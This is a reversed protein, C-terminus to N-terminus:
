APMPRCVIKRRAGFNYVPQQRRKARLDWLAIEISAVPRGGIYYRLPGALRRYDVSRKGAAPAKANDIAAADHRGSGVLGQDTHIELYSGGGVRHMTSTRPEPPRGDNGNRAPGQSSRTSNETIKLRPAAQVAPLMAVAPITKLFNRRLMGTM